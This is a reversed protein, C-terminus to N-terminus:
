MELSPKWRYIDVRIGDFVPKRSKWSGFTNALLIKEASDFITKQSQRKKMMHLSACLGLMVRRGEKHMNWEYTYVNAALRKSVLPVKDKKLM